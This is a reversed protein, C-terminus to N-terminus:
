KNNILLEIYDKINQETKEIADLVVKDREKMDEIIKEDAEKYESEVKEVKEDVYDKSASNGIKTFALLLISVIIPSLIGILINAIHKSFWKM